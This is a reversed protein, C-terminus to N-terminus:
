PCVQARSTSSTQFVSASDTSQVQRAAFPLKEYKYESEKRMEECVNGLLLLVVM